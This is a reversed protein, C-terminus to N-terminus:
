EYRWGLRRLVNRRRRFWLPRWKDSSQGDILKCESCGNANNGNHDNSVRSFKTCNSIRNPRSLFCLPNFCLSCIPTKSFVIKRFCLFILKRYWQFKKWILIRDREFVNEKSCDEKPKPLVGRLKPFFFEKSNFVVFSQILITSVQLNM